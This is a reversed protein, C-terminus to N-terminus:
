RVALDIRREANDLDIMRDGVYKDDIRERTFADASGREGHREIYCCSAYEAV